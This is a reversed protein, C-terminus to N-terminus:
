KVSLVFVASVAKMKLPFRTYDQGNIITYTVQTVPIIQGTEPDWLEPKVKGRVETFTDVPDDSSNAFYYLDRNDKIKHVFSFVGGGSSPSPNGTFIVDSSIELKDLVKSLLAADPKQIFVAKGRNKNANIASVEEPFPVSSELGFIEKIISRVKQDNELTSKINGTIESAKSPLLSTAIIVGGADYYAKIKLLAKLSIVKQGPLILVKYSQSNVKNELELASGNIRIRDSLLFDPHMFTFDRHVQGLLMEGVAMFDAYDPIFTGWRMEKTYEPADFRYFAQLDTIPYYIAIDSVRRGGQLLMSTRGVWEAFSASGGTVDSEPLGSGMLRNIGRIYLEMLRRYGATQGAPSFSNFTEAAVIPKDYYDAGDSILKFGDRGGPYSFIVDAMPIPQARYYKFPDGNM